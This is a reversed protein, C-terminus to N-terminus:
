SPCRIWKLLRLITQLNAYFGGSESILTPVRAPTKTKSYSTRPANTTVTFNDDENTKYGLIDLTTIIDKHITIMESLYDNM